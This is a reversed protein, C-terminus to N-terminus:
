VVFTLETCKDLENEEPIQGRDSVQPVYFILEFVSEDGNWDDGKSLAM